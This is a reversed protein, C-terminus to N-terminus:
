SVESRRRDRRSCTPTCTMPLRHIGLDPDTGCGSRPDHRLRGSFHSGAPGIRRHHGRRRRGGTGTPTVSANGASTQIQSGKGTDVLAAAGFGLVLTMLYFSGILGIAWLVSKRAARATPTTYFRILIHPLGATGLVLALGLSLFDFKGVLTRVTSSGLSAPLSRRQGVERSGRWAPRVLQLRVQGAGPLHDAPHRDDLM